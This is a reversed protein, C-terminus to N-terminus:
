VSTLSRNITDWGNCDSCQPGLVFVVIFTFAILVIFLWYLVWNWVKYEADESDSNIIVAWSVGVVLVVFGVLVVMGWM